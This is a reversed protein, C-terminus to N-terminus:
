ATMAGAKGIRVEGPRTVLDVTNFYRGCARAQAARRAAKAMVPHPQSRASPLDPLDTVQDPM